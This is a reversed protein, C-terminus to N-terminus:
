SSNAGSELSILNSEMAVGIFSPHTTFPTFITLVRVFSGIFVM